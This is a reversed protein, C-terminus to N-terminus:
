INVGFIRRKRIKYYVKPTGGFGRFFEEVGPLVSGEFDFIEFGQKRSRQIAQDMLWTMSQKNRGEESSSGLYYTCVRGFKLILMGSLWENNSWCELLEMRDTGLNKMLCSVKDVSHSKGNIKNQIHRNLQDLFIKTDQDIRLEFNHSECKKLTRTHRNSYASHDDNLNLHYTIRPVIDYNGWIFPLITQFSPNFQVDFWHVSALEKILVELIKYQDTTKRYESTHFPAFLVGQFQCFAPMLCTKFGWKKGPFFPMVALWEEGDRVVWAECNPAICQLYRTTSYISRQPSAAVFSDWDQHNWQNQDWKVIQMDIRSGAISPPEEMTM